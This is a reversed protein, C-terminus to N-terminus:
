RRSAQPADAPVSPQAADPTHDARRKFFSSLHPIIDSEIEDWVGADRLLQRTKTLDASQQFIQFRSPNGFANPRIKPKGIPSMTQENREFANYSTANM